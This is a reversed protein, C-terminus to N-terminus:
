HTRRIADQIARAARAMEEESEAKKLLMFAENTKAIFGAPDNGSVKNIWAWINNALEILEPLSSLLGVIASM